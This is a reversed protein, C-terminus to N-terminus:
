NRTIPILTTYMAFIITAPQILMVEKNKGLVAAAETKEPTYGLESNIRNTPASQNEMKRM